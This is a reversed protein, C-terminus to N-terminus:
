SRLAFIFKINRQPYTQPVHHRLYIHRRVLMKMVRAKGSVNTYPHLTQQTLVPAQRCFQAIVVILEVICLNIGMSM